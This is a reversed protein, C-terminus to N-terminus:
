SANGSSDRPTATLQVTRGVQVTASAPTVTVSAVPVNTVTISATSSQGESTATITASGLGVGTVLGSASVAAISSNGSTWTVTRGSLVNGASDKTTASLQVTQGVLVTASPPSLTVSAVAAPTVTVVATDSTGGPNGTAVVKVKGTDSGSKYRGYHRGGNTSTDTVSGSRVSWSVAVNATDGSSTFGVAMLDTAQNQRLTLIKPSVVLRALSSTVPDTLRLPKECAIVAAIAVTAM